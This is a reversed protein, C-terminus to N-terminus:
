KYVEIKPRLKSVFAPVLLILGLFFARYSESRLPYVEYPYSFPINIIIYDQDFVTINGDEFLLIIKDVTRNDINDFKFSIPQMKTEEKTEKFQIMYFGILFLSMSLSFLIIALIESRSIDIKM